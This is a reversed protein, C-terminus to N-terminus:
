QPLLLLRYQEMQKRPLYKSVDVGSQQFNVLAQLSKKQTYQNGWILWEIIPPIFYELELGHVSALTGIADISADLVWVKPNSVLVAPQVQISEPHKINQMLAPLTDKVLDFRKEGITAIAFIAFRRQNFQPSAIIIAHLQKVYERLRDQILLDFNRVLEMFDFIANEVYENDALRDLVILVLLKLTEDNPNYKGLSLFFGQLDHDPKHAFYNGLARQIGAVIEPDKFLPYKYFESKLDYMGVKGIKDAVAQAKKELFTKKHAPLNTILNELNPHPQKKLSAKANRIVTLFPYVSLGKFYSKAARKFSQEAFAKDGLKKYYNGQTIENTFKSM